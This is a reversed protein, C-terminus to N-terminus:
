DQCQQCTDEPMCKSCFVGNCEDCANTCDDCFVKKCQQCVHSENNDACKQEGCHQCVFFHKKMCDPCIPEECESCEHLFTKQCQDCYAHQCKDQGCSKLHDGECQDCFVKRCEPNDCEGGSCDQCFLENCEVCKQLLDPVLALCADCYTKDCNNCAILKDSLLDEKCRDCSSTSESTHKVCFHEEDMAVEQCSPCYLLQCDDEACKVLQSEPTDKLCRSCKKQPETSEEKGVSKFPNDIETSQDCVAAPGTVKIESKNPTLVPLKFVIEQGVNIALYSIMELPRGIEKIIRSASALLDAEQQHLLDAAPLEPYLARYGKCDQHNILIIKRLSPNHTVLLKVQANLFRQVEGNDAQNLHGISGPIIVPAYSGINLEHHIFTECAQRFRPDSCYIAVAEPPASCYAYIRKQSLDPVIEQGQFLLQFILLDIILEDNSFPLQMAHKTQLHRRFDDVAKIREAFTLIAQDDEPVQCLGLMMAVQFEQPLYVDGPLGFSKYGVKLEQWVAMPIQMKNLFAPILDKIDNM